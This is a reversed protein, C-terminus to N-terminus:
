ILSAGKVDILLAAVIQCEQWAEVATYMLREVVEIVSTKMKCRFQGNHLLQRRECEETVQIAVVKKIVKGLCKQLAIVCYVKPLQYDTKGMNPIVVTTATQWVKPYHGLRIFMRAM